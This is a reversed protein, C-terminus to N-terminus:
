PHTGSDGCEPCSELAFFEALGTAVPRDVLAWWLPRKGCVRCRISVALLLVVAGSGMVVLLGRLIDPGDGSSAVHFGIPPLAAILPLAVYLKWRQRTNELWGGSPGIM